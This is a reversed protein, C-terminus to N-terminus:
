SCGNQPNALRVRSYITKGYPVLGYNALSFDEIAPEM